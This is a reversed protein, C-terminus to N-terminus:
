LTNIIILAMAGLAVGALSKATLRERFFVAGIGAALLMGGGNVLTFLVVSPVLASAITSLLLLASPTESLTLAAYYTDYHLVYDGGCIVFLIISVALLACSIRLSNIFIFWAAPHM